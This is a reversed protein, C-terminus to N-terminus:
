VSEIDKHKEVDEEVKNNKCWLLCGLVFAVVYADIRSYYSVYGYEVVHKAVFIALLYVICPHTKLNKILGILILLMPFYYLVTGIIGCGFLLEIYNNHSYLGYIGSLRGDVGSILKFNDYGYGFWPNRKIYDWGIEILEQRTLLSGDETKEELVLSMLDEVRVGIIDYLVPVNMILYYIVILVIASILINRIFKRRGNVVSILLISIAIMLLGKRSGSLLVISIYVVIKLLYIWSFRSGKMLYLCLTMSYVSLMALVNSNIETDSGLRGTFLTGRSVAITIIATIFIANEFFRIVKNLDRKWLIYQCIVFVMILNLTLSIVMTNAIKNRIAIGLVTGFYGYLIFLTTGVFYYTDKKTFSTTCGKLLVAGCFIVMVIQCLLNRTFYTTIIMLFLYCLDLLDTPEKKRIEMIESM